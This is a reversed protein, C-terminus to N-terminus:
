ESLLSVFQELNANCRDYFLDYIAKGYIQKSDLSKLYAMVNEPRERHLLAIVSAAGTNGDAVRRIADNLTTTPIIRM